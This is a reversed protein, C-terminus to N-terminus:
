AWNGCPVSLRQGAAQMQSSGAVAVEGGGCQASVLYIWKEYYWMLRYKTSKGPLGGGWGM